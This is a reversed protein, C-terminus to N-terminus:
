TQSSASLWILSAMRGTAGDRRYSYFREAELHTCFGGGHIESLGAAQLRRRALAYIDALWRDGQGPRFCAEAGPDLDLFAARVEGGVEFRDPGIAPGLWAVLQQPDSDLAAVTAELVGAALGRWGAHAAGVRSGARDAFLVPLCDATLVACVGGPSFAVSADGEVPGEELTDLRVCRTGHVQRLWVPEESLELAARLRSRNQQVALPDDGVHDALNLGAYPGRSAGHERTTVV